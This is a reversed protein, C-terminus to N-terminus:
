WLAKMDSIDSLSVLKGKDELLEVVDLVRDLINKDIQINCIRLVTDLMDTTVKDIPKEEVTLPAKEEMVPQANPGYTKEFYEKRTKVIPNEKNLVWKDFQEDTILTYGPQLEESIRAYEENICHQSHMYHADYRYDIEELDNFYKNIREYNCETRLIAWREPLSELEHMKQMPEIEPKDQDVIKAWTGKAYICGNLGMIHLTDWHIIYQLKRGNIVDYDSAMTLLSGDQNIPIYKVGKVYRKSVAVASLIREIHESTASSFRNIESNYDENYDFIYVTKNPSIAYGEKCEIIGGLPNSYRFIGEYGDNAYYCWQGEKLEHPSEPESPVISYQKCISIIEQMDTELAIIGLEHLKDFLEQYAGQETSM